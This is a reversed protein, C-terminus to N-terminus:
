WRILMITCANVQGLLFCREFLFWEPLIHRGEPYVHPMIGWARMNWNMTPHEQIQMQMSFLVSCTSSLFMRIKFAIFCHLKETTQIWLERGIHAKEAEPGSLGNHTPWNNSIKISAVSCRIFFYFAQQPSISHHLFCVLHILVFLYVFGSFAFPPM